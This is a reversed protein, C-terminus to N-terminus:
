SVLGAVTDPGVLGARRWGAWEDPSVVYDIQNMLWGIVMSANLVFPVGVQAFAEWGALRRSLVVCSLADVGLDELMAWAALEHYAGRRMFASQRSQDDPPDGAPVLNLLRHLGPGDDAIVWGDILNTVGHYVRM